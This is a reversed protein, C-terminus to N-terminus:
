QDYKTPSFLILADLIRFLKEQAGREFLTITIYCEEKRM